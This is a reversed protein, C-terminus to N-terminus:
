NVSPKTGISAVSDRVLRAHEERGLKELLFKGAVEVALDGARDAIQALADDKALGIEHRARNKEDDAAKRAEAVIAQRTVDADRRAEELMGRVEDTAEALRREYSALMRKADENAAQTAAITDAIGQERKDLGDMIPKWAFKTLLGLLGLFVVFSWVALDTQFWAPSEFDKQTTGAPPNHGIEPLHGHDGHGADHDAHSADAHKADAALAAGGFFGGFFPIACLMIAAAIRPRSAIRDRHTAHIQNM